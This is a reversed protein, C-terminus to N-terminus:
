SYEFLFLFLFVNWIKGGPSDEGEIIIFTNTNTQEPNQERVGEREVRQDESSPLTAM